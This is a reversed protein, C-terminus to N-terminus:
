LILCQGQELIHGIDSENRKRFYAEYLVLYIQLSILTNILNIVIFIDLDELCM